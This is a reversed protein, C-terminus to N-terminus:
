WFSAAFFGIVFLIIFWSGISGLLQTSYSYSTNRMKDIRRKPIPVYSPAYELIFLFCRMPWTPKSDRRKRASVVGLIVSGFIAAWLAIIIHLDYALKVRDNM